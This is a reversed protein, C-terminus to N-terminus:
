PSDRNSSTNPAETVHSSAEGQFSCGKLPTQQPNCLGSRSLLWLVAGLLFILPLLTKRPTCTSGHFSHAVQNNIPVAGGLCAQLSDGSGAGGRMEACARTSIALPVLSLREAGLGCSRAYSWTVPTKPPFFKTQLPREPQRM